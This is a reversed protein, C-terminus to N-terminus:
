NFRWNTIAVKNSSKIFIPGSDRTWVRNTPWLHFKVNKLDVSARTLVKRARAREARNHVIINVQEVRSLHRVIDAYVWPIPEFRGPWDSRNHPWGIWTSKHGEWEAPM